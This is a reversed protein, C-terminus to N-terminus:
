REEETVDTQRARSRFESPTQGVRKRFTKCFHSADTFGLFEAVDAVHRRTSRLLNQARDIRSRTQLEKFGTGLEKRLLARLKAESVFIQEAVDSMTIPETCHDEIFRAAQVALVRDGKEPTKACREILGKAYQHLLPRLEECETTGILRFFFVDNLALVDEFPAGASLFRQSIFIMLEVARCAACGMGPRCIAVEWRQLCDTVADQDDADIAACLQCGLEELRVM